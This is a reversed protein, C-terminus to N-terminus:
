SQKQNYQCGSVYSDIQRFMFTEHAIAIAMHFTKFLFTKHNCLRFVKHTFVKAAWVLQRLNAIMSVPKFDDDMREKNVSFILLFTWLFVVTQMLIKHAKDAKLFDCQSSHIVPGVLCLSCLIADHVAKCTQQQFPPTFCPYFDTCQNGTIFAM